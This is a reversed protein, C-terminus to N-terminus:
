KWMTYVLADYANNVRLFQRASQSDTDRGTHAWRGHKLVSWQLFIPLYLNLLTTWFSRVNALIWLIGYTM